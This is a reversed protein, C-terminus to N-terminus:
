ANYRARLEKVVAVVEEKKPFTIAEEPCANACGMCYVVCNDPRAVIPHGLADDWDYTNGPCIEWCTQCGSCLDINVTPHWPVEHRPIGEWMVVDTVTKDSM